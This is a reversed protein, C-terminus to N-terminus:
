NIRVRKLRRRIEANKISERKDYQKKGRALGIEVKAKSNTFYLKLPVLTFGKDQLKTQLKKIENKHLLLKRERIPDHNSSSGFKYAPINSNILWAENNKIKAYSDPFSVKHNRLSKIETGTLVIGAEFKQFIEFEHYAKKNLSIVRENNSTETNITKM